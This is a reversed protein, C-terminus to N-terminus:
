EWVVTFAHGHWENENPLFGMFDYLILFDMEQLILTNSDCKMNIHTPVM